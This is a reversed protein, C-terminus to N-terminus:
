QPTRIYAENPVGQGGVGVGLDSRSVAIILFINPTIISSTM